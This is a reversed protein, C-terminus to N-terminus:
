QTFFGIDKLHNCKQYVDDYASRVNVLHEDLYDLYERIKEIIELWIM